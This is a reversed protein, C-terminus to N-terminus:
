MTAFYTCYRSAFCSECDPEVKRCVTAGFDLLAMNYTRAEPASEPLLSEAFEEESDVNSFEDGFVREYVRRVNRDLIPVRESDAFCVTANAVYPGVRPLQQLGEPDRPLEDYEDAIAELASARMNHFGIPEISDAIESLSASELADLDPFRRLFRPYLEAVNDAPTQTLFFEAVFVEYFSRDPERWPFERLDEDAWELLDERFRRRRERAM